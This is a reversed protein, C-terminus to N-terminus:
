SELDYFKKKNDTREQKLYDKIIKVIQESTTGDGFTTDKKRAGNQLERHLQEAKKIGELIAETDAKCSIVTDPMIRGEQRSGINVTPVGLFPVEIVGSSSNGMVFESYSVASLYCKMGLSSVIKVNTNEKAYAEFMENIKIGGVDANAKTVLYQYEQKQEMADFLEQMQKEVSTKEQTVPHYTILVYAKEFDFDVSETLKQRSVRPIKKINEIGLAGVNYVRNPEEGLQIIRKRYIETSPFHLYSMKTVAHRITDDVAGETLEGGHLHAIPTQTNLAAACIGLLETRDGLVILLDPKENLFYETFKCLANAMTKSVGMAGNEEDLIPITKDIGVQDAQIETITKGYTELLHTGTVILKTEFSQEKKCRKILPSLIGYEARTATVIAIKKM